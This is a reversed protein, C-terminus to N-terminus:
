EPDRFVPAGGGHTPPNADRVRARKFLLECRHSPSREPPSSPLAQPRPRRASRQPPPSLTMTLASFNIHFNCKSERFRENSGLNSLEDWKAPGLFVAVLRGIKFKSGEPNRSITCNLIIFGELHAFLEALQFIETKKLKM